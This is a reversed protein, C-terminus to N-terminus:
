FIHTIIIFIEYFSLILISTFTLLMGFIRFKFNPKKNLISKPEIRTLSLFHLVRGTLFIFTFFLTIKYNLTQNIEIIFILIIFIISYEFFNRSAAVYRSLIESEGTGIVIKEKKRLSIIKFSSFCFIISFLPILLSTIM